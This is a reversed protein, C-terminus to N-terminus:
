NLQLKEKYELKMTGDIFHIGEMGSYFLCKATNKVVEVGITICRM